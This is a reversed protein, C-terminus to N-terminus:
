GKKEVPATIYTNSMDFKKYTFSGGTTCEFYQISRCDHDNYIHNVKDRNFFNGTLKFDFRDTYWSNEVVRYKLTMTVELEKRLEEM